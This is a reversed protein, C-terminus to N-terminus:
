YTEYQLIQERQMLIFQQDIFFYLLNNKVTAYFKMTIRSRSDGSFILEKLNIEIKYYVFLSVTAMASIAVGCKHLIIKTNSHDIIFRDSTTAHSINLNHM